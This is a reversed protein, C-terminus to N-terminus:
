ERKPQTKEILEIRHGDPDAVVARRGWESEKPASVVSNPYGIIAEIARDVSIVSFGIRTGSTPSADPSLPYIEFVGGPLEAAFHEPGNGHRHRAFELGLCRYFAASQEADPSRIVVLNLSLINSSETTDTM